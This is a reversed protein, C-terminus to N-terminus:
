LMTVPTSFPVMRTSDVGPLPVATTIVNGRVTDRAAAAQCVRRQSADRDDHPVTCQVAMTCRGFSSQEHGHAAIACAPGPQHLAAGNCPAIDCRLADAHM